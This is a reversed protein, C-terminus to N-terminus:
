NTIPVFRQLEKEGLFVYMLGVLFDRVTSKGSQEAGYIINIGKQLDM